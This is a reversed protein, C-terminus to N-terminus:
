LLWLISKRKKKKVQNEMLMELCEHYKDQLDDVQSLFVTLVQNFKYMIYFPLTRAPGFLLSIEVKTVYLADSVTAVTLLVKYLWLLM